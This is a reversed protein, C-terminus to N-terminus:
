CQGPAIERGVDSGIFWDAGECGAAREPAAGSQIAAIGHSNTNKQAVPNM